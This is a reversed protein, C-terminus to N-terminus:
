LENWVEVFVEADVDGYSKDADVSIIPGAFFTFNVGGVANTLRVQSGDPLVRKLDAALHAMRAEDYRGAVIDLRDAFVDVREVYAAAFLETIVPLHTARREAPGYLSFGPVAGEPSRYNVTISAPDAGAAVIAELPAVADPSDVTFSLLTPGASIAVVGPVALAQVILPDVLAFSGEWERTVIGGTIEFTIGGAGPLSAALATAGDVDADSQLRLAVLGPELRTTLITYEAAIAQMATIEAEPLRGDETSTLLFGGGATTVTVPGGFGLDLLQQLALVPDAEATLRLSSLGSGASLEGGTVGEVGRALDFLEVLEANADDDITIDFSFDSVQAVGGWSVSYPYDRMFAAAREVIRAIDDLSADDEITVSVNASGTFPLTNSGSGDTEIVGAVGAMHRNFAAIAGSGANVPGCGTVALVVAVALAILPATRRRM